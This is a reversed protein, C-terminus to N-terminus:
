RGFPTMISELEHFTVALFGPYIVRVGFTVAHPAPAGADHTSTGAPVQSFIAPPCMSGIHDKGNL